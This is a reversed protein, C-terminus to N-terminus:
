GILGNIWTQVESKSSSSSFRRGEKWNGTGAMDKLLTDSNGVGSSASTCFPVVTKGTFDNAIVFGNVPWAAIGWWIPYGLFVTDYSEWNDPTTKELAVNRLSQDHYEKSVRSNSDNYRLDASSYPNQPVLEFTAGKTIDAIYEAIKETNNTASFYVILVSGLDSETKSGGSQGDDGATDTNGLTEHVSGTDNTGDSCAAFFGFACMLLALFFPLFKIYKKM